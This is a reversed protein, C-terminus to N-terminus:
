VEYAHIQASLAVWVHETAGIGTNRPNGFVLYSQHSSGCYKNPDQKFLLCIGPQPSQLGLARSLHSHILGSISMASLVELNYLEAQDSQRVFLHM